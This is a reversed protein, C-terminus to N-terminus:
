LDYEGIIFSFNVPEVVCIMTQKTRPHMVVIRYMNDIYDCKLIQMVTDFLYSTVTLGINHSNTITNALRLRRVQQRTMAVPLEVTEDSVYSILEQISSNTEM